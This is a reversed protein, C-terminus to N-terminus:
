PHQYKMKAFLHTCITQFRTQDIGHITAQAIMLQLQDELQAPLALNDEIAPSVKAGHRRDIVIYGEQKLLAYAKNVTMANLGLDEALQRVTPLKEGPALEGTAIGIIIQNYLQEYLPVESDLQLTIVM